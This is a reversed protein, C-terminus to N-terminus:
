PRRSRRGLPESTDQEYPLAIDVGFVEESLSLFSRDLLTDVTQSSEGVVERACSLILDQTARLSRMGTPLTVSEATDLARYSVVDVAPLSIDRGVTRPTRGESEAVCQVLESLLSPTDAMADTPPVLVDFDGSEV